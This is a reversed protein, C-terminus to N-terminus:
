VNAQLNVQLHKFNELITGFTSNTKLSELETIVMEVFDNEDISKAKNKIVLERYFIDTGNNIILSSIKERELKEYLEVTKTFKKHNDFFAIADSEYFSKLFDCFLEIDNVTNTTYRTNNEFNTIELGKPTNNISPSTYITYYSDLKGGLIKQIEQEVINFRKEATLSQIAFTDGYELWSFRIRFGESDTEKTYYINNELQTFTYGEKELFACEKKITEIYLATDM